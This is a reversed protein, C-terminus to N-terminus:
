AGAWGAVAQSARRLPKSAQVVSIVDIAVGAVVLVRGAYRFYKAAQHAVEGVRGDPTHDTIKFVDATSKQNWHYDITQTKVNYGYDLRLHRKGTVDQFFLTSTSGGKPTWGRATLEIALGGTGPIPIRVVSSQGIAYPISGSSPVDVPDAVSTASISTPSQPGPTPTSMRASTGADIQDIAANPGFASPSQKEAM